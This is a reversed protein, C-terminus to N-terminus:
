KAVKGNTKAKGNNAIVNRERMVQTAPLKIPVLQKRGFNYVEELLELYADRTSYSVLKERCRTAGQILRDANFAPVRCVCMCAELMRANKVELSLSTLRCYIGAVADAWARDKVKFNGETFAQKVNGWSTTGALLGFATAIPLGHSDAYELGDRYSAIGNAAYKEAYDRVKWIISTGNVLAVDYDVDEIIYYVPLGLEEAIALRHQGDKVILNGDKGRTCSIPFSKLFGYKKMSALLRKHRSIDIVRNEDSRTFLRYNKTATAKQKVIRVM